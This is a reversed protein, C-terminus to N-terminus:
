HFNLRNMKITRVFPLLILKEITEKTVTCGPDTFPVLSTERSGHLQLFLMASFEITDFTKRYFFNLTSRNNPCTLGVM